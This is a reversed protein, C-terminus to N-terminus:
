QTVRATRYSEVVERWEDNMKVVFRGVPRGSKDVSDVRFGLDGGSLVRSEPPAQAPRPPFLPAQAPSHIGQEFPSIRPSYSGSQATLGAAAAGVAVLSLGWLVIVKRM